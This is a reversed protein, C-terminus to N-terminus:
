ARRVGNGEDSAGYVYVFPCTSVAAAGSCKGRAASVGGDVAPHFVLTPFSSEREGRVKIRAYVYSHRRDGDIFM